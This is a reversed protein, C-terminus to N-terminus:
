NEAPERTTSLQEKKRMKKRKKTFGRRRSFADKVSGSPKKKQNEDDLDEVDGELMMREQEREASKVIEV